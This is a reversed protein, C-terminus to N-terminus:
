YGTLRTRALDSRQTVGLKRYIRTLHQEVTSATIYLKGAIQRNTHGQAALEAVRQEAKSLRTLPEGADQWGSRESEVTAAPAHALAGTDSEVDLDADSRKVRVRTDSLRERWPRLAPLDLGWQEMLQECARFDAAAAAQHGGALLHSGRAYLYCLGSPTQFMADPVAIRLHQQAEERKGLANAALVAVAIVFGIAVGWGNPSLASLAALARERAGAPDDLCLAIAASAATFVARWTPRTLVATDTLLWGCWHAAAQFRRAVILGALAVAKPMLLPKAGAPVRLVQEAAAVSEEDDGQALVASLIGAAGLCPSTVASSLEGQHAPLRGNWALEALAPYGCGIWFRMAACAPDDKEVCDDLCGLLNVADDVRGAWLLQGVVGLAPQGTLLGARSVAALEPLHLAANAPDIQWRAHALAARIAASDAPEGGTRLALRLCDAALELEGEAEAQEAADRLLSGVWAAEVQDTAVVHRAVATVPAAGRDHLVAATRWHIAARAQDGMRDLVAARTADHRLRTGTLLGAANLDSVAQAASETCLEAVDALVPLPMATDLVAAARVLNQVKSDFHYLCTRVARAFAAHPMAGPEPRASQDYEEILAQALLPNGGTIRHVEEASLGADRPGERDAILAAIGLPGLPALEIRHCHSQRLIESHFVSEAPRPCKCETFLLLMRATTIRRAGYLLCQLSQEDCHHLDDVAIVLPVREALEFLAGWVGRLMTMPMRELNVAAAPNRSPRWLRTAAPLAPDAYLQDLVGFPIYREARSTSVSLVGAGAGRTWETFSQTLASKGYGVWGSIVAVSGQGREARTYLEKLNRLEGDREVLRLNSRRLSAIPENGDNM